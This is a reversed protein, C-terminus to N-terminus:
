YGGQEESVRIEFGTDVEGLELDLNMKTMKLNMDTDADESLTFVIKGAARHSKLIDFGEDQSCLLDDTCSEM